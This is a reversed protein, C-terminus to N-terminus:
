IRRAVHGRIAATPDGRYGSPEKATSAVLFSGSAEAALRAPAEAPCGRHAYLNAFDPNTFM